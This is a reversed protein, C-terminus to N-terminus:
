RQGDGSYWGLNLFAFLSPKRVDSEPCDQRLLEVGCLDTPWQWGSRHQERPPSCYKIVVCAIM